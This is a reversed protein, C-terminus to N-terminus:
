REDYNMLDAPSVDYVLRDREQLRAEAGVRGVPVCYIAYCM